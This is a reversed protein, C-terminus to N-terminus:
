MRVLSGVVFYFDFESIKMEDNSASMYCKLKYCNLM